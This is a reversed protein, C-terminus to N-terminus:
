LQGGENMHTFGGCGTGSLTVQGVPKAPQPLDVSDSLLLVLVQDRFLTARDNVKGVVGSLCVFM